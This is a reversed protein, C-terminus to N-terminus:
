PLIVTSTVGALHFMPLTVQRKSLVMVVKKVTHTMIDITRNIILCTLFSDATIERYVSKNVSQSIIIDNISCM